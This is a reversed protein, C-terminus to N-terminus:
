DNPAKADIWEQLLTQDGLAIEAEDKPMQAGCLPNPMVKEYLLSTSADGAVVRTRGMGGCSPGSAAVGVLNKYATSQTSMDLNGALTSGNHCATCGNTEIINTYVNTFTPPGSAAAPAAPPSGSCGSAFVACLPFALAVVRAWPKM